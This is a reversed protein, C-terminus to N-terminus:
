AQAISGFAKWFRLSYPRIPPLVKTPTAFMSVARLTAGAEYAQQTSEVQEAPTIPVAPNDAKRSVSGTIAIAIVVPRPGATVSLTRGFRESANHSAARAGASASKWYPNSLALEVARDFGMTPCEWTACRWRRVWARRSNSCHPLTM